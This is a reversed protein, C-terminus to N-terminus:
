LTRRRLSAKAWTGNAASSKEVRVDIMRLNTLTSHDLEIRTLLCADLQCGIGSSDRLVAGEIRALEYSDSAFCDINLTELSTTRPLDLPDISRSAKRKTAKIEVRHDCHVCFNRRGRHIRSTALDVSRASRDCGHADVSMEPLGGKARPRNPVMRFPLQTDKLAPRPHSAHASFM